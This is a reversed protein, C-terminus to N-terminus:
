VAATVVQDCRRGVATVAVSKGVATDAFWLTLVEGDRLTRAPNPFRTQEDQLVVPTGDLTVGQIEIQDVSGGTLALEVDLATAKDRACSAVALVPLAAAAFVRVAFLRRTRM